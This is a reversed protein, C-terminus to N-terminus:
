DIPVTEAVATCCCAPTCTCCCSSGVLESQATGVYPSHAWADQISFIDRISLNQTAKTSNKWALAILDGDTLKQAAPTLHKPDLFETVPQSFGSIDLTSM